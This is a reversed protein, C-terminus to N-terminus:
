VHTYAHGDLLHQFPLFRPEPLADLAFWGLETSEENAREEGSRHKAEFWLTIHHKGEEFVDNTVALFRVDGVEVGTEEMAERVACDEPREGYELYGGPPSWTGAGHSRARKMLLVQDGRKILLAVGVGPRNERVRSLRGSTLAGSV